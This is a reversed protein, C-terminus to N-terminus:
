LACSFALYGPMISLSFHRRRPPSFTERELGTMAKLHFGIQERNFFVDATMAATIAALFAARRGKRDSFATAANYFDWGADDADGAFALWSGCLTVWTTAYSMYWYASTWRFWLGERRPIYLWRPLDCTLRSFVPASMSTLIRDQASRVSDPRDYEVWQVYPLVGWRTTHTAFMAATLAHVGEHPAAQAHYATFILLPIEIMRLPQFRKVEAGDHKPSIAGPPPTGACVPVTDAPANLVSCAVAACVAYRLMTYRGAGNKM